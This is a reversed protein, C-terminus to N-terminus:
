FYKSNMTKVYNNTRHNFLSIDVENPLEAIYVILLELVFSNVTISFKGIQLFESMYLEKQKRIKQLSYLTLHWGNNDYDVFM